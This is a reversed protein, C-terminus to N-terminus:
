RRQDEFIFARVSINEGEAFEEFVCEKQKGPAELEFLFCSNTHLLVGILLVKLIM